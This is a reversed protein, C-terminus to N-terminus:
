SSADYRHLAWSQNINMFTLFAAAPPIPRNHHVGIIGTEPAAKVPAAMVAEKVIRL